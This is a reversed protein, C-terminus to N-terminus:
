ESDVGSVGPCWVQVPGVKSQLAGNGCRPGFREDNQRRSEWAHKTLIAVWRLVLSCDMWGSVTWGLCGLVGSRFRGLRARTVAAHGSVSMM